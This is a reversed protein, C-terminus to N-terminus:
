PMVMPGDPERSARCLTSICAQLELKAGASLLPGFAWTFGLGAALHLPAMGHHGVHNLAAAAAESGVM